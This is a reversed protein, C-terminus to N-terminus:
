WWVRLCCSVCIGAVGKSRTLLQYAAAAVPEMLTGEQASVWVVCAWLPQYWAPGAQRQQARFNIPTGELLRDQLSWGNCCQGTTVMGVFGSSLSLCFCLVRKWDVLPTSALLLEQFKLALILCLGGRDFSLVM